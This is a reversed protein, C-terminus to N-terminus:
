VFNNRFFNLSRTSSPPLTMGSCASAMEYLKTYHISYSTIVITIDVGAPLNLKKLEDVTKATPEIIDIEYLKTYHISYSTIVAM